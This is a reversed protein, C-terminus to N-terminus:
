TSSACETPENQVCHSIYIANKSSKELHSKLVLEGADIRFELLNNFQATNDNDRRIPLNHLAYFLLSTVIPKLKNRNETIKNKYHSDLIQDVGSNREM